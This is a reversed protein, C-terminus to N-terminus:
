DDNDGFEQALDDDASPEPEDEGPKPKPQIDTIWSHVQLLAKSKGDKNKFTTDNRWADYVEAQVLKADFLGLFLEKLLAKTAGARFWAGQSEFLVRLQADADSAPAVRRLLPAWTPLVSLDAKGANAYVLTAVHKAVANIVNTGPSLKPDVDKNIAALVADPAAGSALQASVAEGLDPVPKLVLLGHSELFSDLEAGSASSLAKVVDLAKAKDAAEAGRVLELLQKDSKKNKFAVLTALLLSPASKSAAASASASGGRTTQVLKALTVKGDILSKALVNAYENIQDEKSRELNLRALSDALADDSELVSNNAVAVELPTQKQAMSVVGKKTLSEDVVVHREEGPPPRAALKDSAKSSLLKGKLASRPAEDVQQSRPGTPLPANADYGRAASGYGGYRSGGSPPARDGFRGGGGGMAGGGGGSESCEYSKHGEKGCKFCGRPRDDGRSFRDGGGGGGSGGESCEFSRHGEQGCKYCAGGRGGGSSGGFRDGGRDGFRDSSGGGMGGGGNPCEYGKHGEEGCKFCGRPRDDGRSFRDSSGFRDGGRDGGFRDSGRDGGGFRDSSRESRDGGFRDERPAEDRSFRSGSESSREAPASDSSKGFRLHAPRSDGSDGGYGGGRRDDRGYSDRSDRGGYGSDRGGYGGDRGGDRGGYSSDRGGYGGSRESSAPASRRWRDAEDARSPADEEEARAGRREERDGYGRGGDRGGDRDGGYGGGGGGYRSAGFGGDGGSPAAPLDSGSPGNFDSLNM